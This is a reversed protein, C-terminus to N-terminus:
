ATVIQVWMMVSFEHNSGTETLKADTGGRCKLTMSACRMALWSVPIQIMFRM